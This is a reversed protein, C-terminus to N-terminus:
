QWPVSMGSRGAAGTLWHKRFLVSYFSSDLVSRTRQHPILVPPTQVLVGMLCQGTIPLHLTISLITFINHGKQVSNKPPQNPPPSPTPDQVCIKHFEKVHHLFRIEESSSAGIEARGFLSAPSEPLINRITTLEWLKSTEWISWPWHALLHVSCCLFCHWPNYHKLLFVQAELVPTLQCSSQPPNLPSKQNINGTTHMHIILLKHNLLLFFLQM